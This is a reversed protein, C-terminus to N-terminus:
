FAHRENGSLSYRYVRPFSNGDEEEGGGGESSFFVCPHTRVLLATLSFFLFIFYFGGGPTKVNLPAATRPQWNPLTNEGAKLNSEELQSQASKSAKREGRLRQRRRVARFYRSKVRLGPKM